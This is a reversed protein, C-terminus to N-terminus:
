TSAADAADRVLSDVRAPDLVEDLALVIAGLLEANRPNEATLIELREAAFPLCLRFVESRITAVLPPSTSLLGSLVLEDPNFFNIVASLVHAIHAGADRLERVADADGHEALDLVESTMQIDHGARRMRAVIAGGGAVSELCNPVGCTCGIVSEGHVPTHSIEGAAGGAGRYLQGNIIVGGGIRTGIKVAILNSNDATLSRESLAILNVDNEIRVPVQTHLSFAKGLDANHWRPQFSPTVLRQSPFAVPAPVGLVLGRLDDLSLGTLKALEAVQEWIAQVAERFDGDTPIEGIGSPVDDPDVLLRGELDALVIRAHHSGLEVAAVFGAAGNLHLQRARRGGRSSERGTETLLGISLLADVRAGITSPALGTVSALAARSHAQGTRILRLVQGVSGVPAVAADPLQRTTM